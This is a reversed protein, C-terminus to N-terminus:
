GNYEGRIKDIAKLVQKVQYAKAKNGDKQINVRPDGSWPMKYVMHSSGSQRPIGFYSDCVKSLDSFKINEPCNRMDNIIDEVKAM